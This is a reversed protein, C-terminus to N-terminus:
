DKTFIALTSEGYNKLKDAEKAWEPISRSPMEFIAYGGSTLHQLYIRLDPYTTTFPPDAFILDFKGDTFKKKCIVKDSIKWKEATEKITLLLKGSIDIFTASSAGRSIAEFGVSGSGAYLDLVSFDEVSGIINFIAERTKSSTPRVGKDKIPALVRGKLNGAIIRM